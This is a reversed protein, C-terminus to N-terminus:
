GNEAQFGVLVICAHQPQQHLKACAVLLHIHDVPVLCTSESSTLLPIKDPGQPGLGQGERFGTPKRRHSETREGQYIFNSSSAFNERWSQSPTFGPM